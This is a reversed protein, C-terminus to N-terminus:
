VLPLTSVHHAYRLGELGVEQRRACWPFPGGAGSCSLRGRRWGGSCCPFPSRLSGHVTILVSPITTTTFLTLPRNWGRGLPCHRFRHRPFWRGDGPVGGGSLPGNRSTHSYISIGGCVAPAPSQSRVGRQRTCRELAASGWERLVVVGRVDIQGEKREAKVSQGGNKQVRSDRGSRWARDDSEAM